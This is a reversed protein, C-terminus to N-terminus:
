DGVLRLENENGLDPCDAAPVQGLAALSEPLEIALTEDALYAERPLCVVRLTRARAESGPATTEFRDVPRIVQTTDISLARHIRPRTVSGFDRAIDYADAFVQREAQDALETDRLIEHASLWRANADLLLMLGAEGRGYLTDAGTSVGDADFDDLPFALDHGEFDALLEYGERQILIARAADAVATAIPGDAEEADIYLDRTRDALDDLAFRAGVFDGPFEAFSEEEIVVVEDPPLSPLEREIAVLRDVLGEPAQDDGQLASAVVQGGLLSAIMAALGIGVSLQRRATRTMRV